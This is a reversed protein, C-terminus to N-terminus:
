STAGVHEICDFLEKALQPKTFSGEALVGSPALITQQGGGAGFNKLTNHVLLDCSKRRLKEFGLSLGARAELAFGVNLQGKKKREGAWALIDVTPVLSLVLSDRGEKKLKGSARRQPTFDAVAAAAIFLVTKNYRAKVAELMDRASVVNVVEVGKPPKADCPGLILTTRYGRKLGESALKVGLTGTSLNSLFRVGDIFERTPGATILLTKASM